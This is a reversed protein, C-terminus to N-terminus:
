RREQAEPNVVNPPVKGTVGALCNEAAMTAMKTRTATSASGLHPPIVVNDLKLLAEDM